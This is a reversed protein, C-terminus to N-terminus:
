PRVDGGGQARAGRPRLRSVVFAVITVLYAHGILQEINSFTRGLQGAATLDGYGTTTLTTFSYYLYDPTTGDTGQAFFPEPDILGIGNFLFAFFMGVLLYVSLAGFITERRVEGMRLMGRIIAFPAVAVMLGSILGVLGLSINSGELLSVTSIAFGALVAV